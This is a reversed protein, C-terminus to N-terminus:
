IYETNGRITFPVLPSRLQERIKRPTHKNVFILYRISWVKDTSLMILIKQPTSEKGALEKKLEDSLSGLADQIIFEKITM